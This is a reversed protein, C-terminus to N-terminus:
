LYKNTKFHMQNCLSCKIVFYNLYKKFHPIVFHILNNDGNKRRHQKTVCKLHVTPMGIDHSDMHERQFTEDIQLLDELGNNRIMKEFEIVNIDHQLIFQLFKCMRQRRNGNKPLLKERIGEVDGICKSLTEKAYSIQMEDLINKYNSIIM